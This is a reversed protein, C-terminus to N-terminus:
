TTRRLITIPMPQVISAGDTGTTQVGLNVLVSNGSTSFVPDITGDLNGDIPVVNEVLVQAIASTTPDGVPLTCNSITTGAIEGRLLRKTASDYWYGVYYPQVGSTSPATEDQVTLFKLKTSTM